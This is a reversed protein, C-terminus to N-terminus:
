PKKSLSLIIFFKDGQSLGGQNQSILLPFLSKLHYALLRSFVKYSVNCISITLFKSFLFPNSDKPILNLFFSNKDGGMAFRKFSYGVLRCLGNKIVDWFSHYFITTFGELCSAKDPPFSFIVKQIEEGMLPSTLSRNWKESVLHPIGELFLDAITLDWIHDKTYM